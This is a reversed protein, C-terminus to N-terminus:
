FLSGWGRCRLTFVPGVGHTIMGDRLTATAMYGCRDNAPEICNAVVRGDLLDSHPVCVFGERTVDAGIKLSAFHAPSFDLAILNQREPFMKFVRAAPALWSLPNMFEAGRFAWPNMLPLILTGLALWRWPPPAKEPGFLWWLVMATLVFSLACAALASCPLALMLLSELVIGATFANLWGVLCFFVLGAAVSFFRRKISPHRTTQTCNM